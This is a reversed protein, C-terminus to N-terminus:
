GVARMQVSALSYDSSKSSAPGHPISCAGPTPSDQTLLPSGTYAACSHPGPFGPPLGNVEPGLQGPLSPSEAKRSGTRTDCISQSSGKGEGPPRPPTPEVPTHRAGAPPWAHASPCRDVGSARTVACRPSGHTVTVKRKDLSMSKTTKPFHSRGGRCSSSCARLFCLTASGPEM